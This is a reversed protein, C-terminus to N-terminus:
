AALTHPREEREEWKSLKGPAALEVKVWVDADTLM